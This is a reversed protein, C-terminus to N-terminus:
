ALNKYRNEVLHKSFNARVLQMAKTLLPILRTDTKLNIILYIFMIDPLLAQFCALFYAFLFDLLCLVERLLLRM